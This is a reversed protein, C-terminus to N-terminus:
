RDDLCLGVEQLMRMALEDGYVHQLLNPIGTKVRILMEPYKTHEISYIEEEKWHQLFDYVQNNLSPFALEVQEVFEHSGGLLGFKGATSLLGWKGQASYIVYDFWFEMGFNHNLEDQLSATHMEELSIYCHRNRTPFRDLITIYCGTDSLFHAAHIVANLLSDDLYVSGVYFIRRGPISSTFLIDDDYDVEIYFIQKLVPEMEVLYQDETLIHM